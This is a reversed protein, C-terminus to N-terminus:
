AGPALEAPVNGGGSIDLDYGSLDRFYTRQEALHPVGRRLEKWIERGYDRLEADAVTRLSHVWVQLGIADHARKARGLANVAKALEHHYMPRAEVLAGIRGLDIGEDQLKNRQHAAIALVFGVDNDSLRALHGQFAKAERRYRAQAWLNARARLWAVPGVM